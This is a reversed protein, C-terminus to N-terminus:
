RLEIGRSMRLNLAFVMCLYLSFTLLTSYQCGNSPFLTFFIPKSICRLIWLTASVIMELAKPRSVETTFPNYLKLKQTWFLVFSGNLDNDNTDLSIYTSFQCNKGHCFNGRDKNRKEDELRSDEYKSNREAKGEDVEERNTVSHPELGLGNFSASADDQDNEEETRKIDSVFSVATYSTNLAINEEQSEM